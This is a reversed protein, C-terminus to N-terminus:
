DDGNPAAGDEDEVLQDEDEPEGDEPEEDETESEESDSDHPTDEGNQADQKRSGYLSEALSRAQADQLKKQEALQEALAAREALRGSRQRVQDTIATNPHQTRGTTVALPKSAPRIAPTPTPTVPPTSDPQAPRPQQVPTAPDNTV